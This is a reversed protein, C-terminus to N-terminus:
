FDFRRPSILLFSTGVGVVHEVIAKELFFCNYPTRPATTGRLHRWHSRPCTRHSSGWPFFRCNDKGRRARAPHARYTTFVGQLPLPEEHRHISTFSGAMPSERHWKALATIHIRGQLHLPTGGYSPSLRFSGIMPYEEQSEWHLRKADFDGHQLPFFPKTIM